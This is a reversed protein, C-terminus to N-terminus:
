KLWGGYRNPHLFALHPFHPLLGAHERFRSSESGDSLSDAQFGFSLSSFLTSEGVRINSGWNGWEDSTREYFPSCAGGNSIGQEGMPPANAGGNARSSM